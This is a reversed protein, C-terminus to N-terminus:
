YLRLCYLKKDISIVEKSSNYNNKLEKLAGINESISNSIRAFVSFLDKEDKFYVVETNPLKDKDEYEQYTLYTIEM